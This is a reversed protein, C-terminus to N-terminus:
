AGDGARAQVLSTYLAEHEAAARPWTLRKRAFGAVAVREREALGRDGLRLRLAAALAPVDDPRVVCGGAAGFWEGCGHGGAVVGATGALAGEFPVLGFAEGVAPHVLVDANAYAEALDTAQLVGRARVRGAHRGFLGLFARGMPGVLELEAQPLADLLEPLLQGRKQPRDSGVFLLRPRPHPGGRAEPAPGPEAVGNPIVTAPRPLDHAEAESVAVLATARLLAARGGLRDVAAKALRRQGHHPSTGHPSLVWPRGAGRLATVAALVFPNRHGHLHAVDCAAAQSRLVAPLAPSWPILLRGLPRPVPLRLVRVGGLLEERAHGPDLRATVVHVDHGREALARCLASSARAIGGFAWAPEYFPTVHLIRM